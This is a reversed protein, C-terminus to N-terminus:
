LQGQDQRSHELPGPGEPGDDVPVPVAIRQRRDLDCHQGRAQDAREVHQHRLASPPLGALPRRGRDHCQRAQGPDREAEVGRGVYQQAGDNAHGDRQEGEAPEGGVLDEWDGVPPAAAGMQVDAPGAALGDAPGQGVLEAQLDLLDLREAQGPRGAGGRQADGDGALRRDDQEALQVGAAVQARVAPVLQAPLQQVAAELVLLGEVGDAPQDLLLVVRQPQQAVGAQGRRRGVPDDLEGGLALVQDGELEEILGLFEALGLDVLLDDVLAQADDALEPVGPQGMAVDLRGVQQDAM